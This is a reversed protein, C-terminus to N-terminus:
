RCSSRVEIGGACGIYLVGEDESDLNIMLRSNVHKQEINFAGTLGTEESVTFIAEIPGHKCSPDSLIDMVLAIAIGNDGGLTTGDAKLFDGDRVLKIPDKTFDHNSGEEKVCVMDM